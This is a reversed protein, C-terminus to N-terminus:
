CIVFFTEPLVKYMFVRCGPSRIKAGFCCFGMMVSGGCAAHYQVNHNCLKM